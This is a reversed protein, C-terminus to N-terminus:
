ERHMTSAGFPLDNALHRAEKCSPPSARRSPQSGKRCRRHATGM